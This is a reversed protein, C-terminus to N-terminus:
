ANRRILDAIGDEISVEPQWSLLEYAKSVDAWTHRPEPRPDVYVIPANFLRALENISVPRGAGINITEGRGVRSDTADAAKILARVVDSVHTFDRTQEGDSTITLPMGARKQRLFKGIVLAYDGEPDLLPGYVNFFRLCVTSVCYTRYWVRCLEEGFYKQLAYPSQPSIEMTECFPMIPQDGYASSSAAYVVRRVGARQAAILLRQTGMVNVLMTAEPHRISYQVRPLAALHYVVEAGVLPGWSYGPDTIDAEHYSAEDVRRLPNRGAAYNDIISVRDGRQVLAAALNSGIFGAGGTVVCKM